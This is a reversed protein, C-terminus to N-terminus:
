HFSNKPKICRLKAKLEGNLNGIANIVELDFRIALEKLPIDLLQGINKIGVKSLRIHQKATIALCEVPMSKINALVSAKSKFLKNTGVKALLKASAPSHATAYLYKVHSGEIVKKTKFWLKTESGNNSLLPAMNIYLGNPPDQYIESIVLYLKESLQNLLTLELKECYMEITLEDALAMATALGMQQKIGQYKACENLQIVENIKTDIIVLPQRDKKIQEIHDLQLQTFSIYLWNM